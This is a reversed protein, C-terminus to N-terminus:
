TRTNCETVERNPTAIKSDQHHGVIHLRTTRAHTDDDNPDTGAVLFFSMPSIDWGRESAKQKLVCSASPSWSYRHSQMKGRTLARTPTPTPHTPGPRPTADYIHPPVGVAFNTRFSIHPTMLNRVRWHLSTTRTVHNAAPQNRLRRM